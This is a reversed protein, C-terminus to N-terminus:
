RLATVRSLVRCHSRMKNLIFALAQVIVWLAKIVQKERAEMIGNVGDDIGRQELRASRSCSLWRVVEPAKCESVRQM